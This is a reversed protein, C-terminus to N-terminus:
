TFTFYFLQQENNLRASTFISFSGDQDFIHLVIGKSQTRATRIEELTMKEAFFHNFISVWKQNRFHTKKLHNKPVSSLVM